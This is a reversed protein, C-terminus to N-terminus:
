SLERNESSSCSAECPPLWLCSAHMWVAIASFVSIKLVVVLPRRCTYLFRALAAAEANREGNERNRERRERSEEEEENEEGTIGKIWGRRVRLFSKAEKPAVQYISVSSDDSDDDGKTGSSPGRSEVFPSAVDRTM